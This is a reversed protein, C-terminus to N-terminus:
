PASYICIIATKGWIFCFFVSYCAAHRSNWCCGFVYLHVLMKKKKRKVEINHRQQKQLKESPDVSKTLKVTSVLAIVVKSGFRLPKYLSLSFFLSCKVSFHFTVAFSNTLSVYFTFSIIFLVLPFLAFRRRLCKRIYVVFTSIDCVKHGWVFCCCCCSFCLFFLRASINKLVHYCVETSKAKRVKQQWHWIWWPISLFNTLKENELSFFMYWSSYTYM